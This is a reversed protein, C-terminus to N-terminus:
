YEHYFVAFAQGFNIRPLLISMYLAYIASCIWHKQKFNMCINCYIKCNWLPYFSWNALKAIVFFFWCMNWLPNLSCFSSILYCWLRHIFLSILVSFFNFLFSYFFTSTYHEVYNLQKIYNHTRMRFVSNVSIGYSYYRKIHIFVIFNNRQHAEGWSLKTEHLSNLKNCIWDKWKTMQERGRKRM